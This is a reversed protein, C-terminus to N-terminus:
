SMLWLAVLLAVDVHDRLQNRLTKLAKRIQTEVTRKSLSLKDAIEQNTVGEYRSMEFIRRCQKPLSEVVNFIRAELETELM